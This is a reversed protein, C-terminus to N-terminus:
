LPGPKRAATRNPEKGVGSEGGVGILLSSQRCVLNRLFLSLKSVPSPLSPPPRPASGYSRLLFGPGRYIMLYERTRVTQALILCSVSM